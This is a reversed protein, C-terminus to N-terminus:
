WTVDEIVEIEASLYMASGNKGIKVNKKIIQVGKERLCLIYKELRDSLLKEMEKDTYAFYQFDVKRQTECGYFIPLYM